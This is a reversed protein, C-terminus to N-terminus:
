SSAQCCFTHCDRISRNSVQHAQQLLMPSAATPHRDRALWSHTFDGADTFRPNDDLRLDQLATLQALAAVADRLRSEHEAQVLRSRKPGWPLCGSIGLSTLVPALPRLAWLPPPAAALVGEQSGALSLRALCPLRALIAM